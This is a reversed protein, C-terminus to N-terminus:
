KFIFLFKYNAKYGSEPNPEISIQVVVGVLMDEVCVCARVCACM